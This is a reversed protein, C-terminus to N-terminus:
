WMSDTMLTATYAQVCGDEPALVDESEEGVFVAFIRFENEVQHLVAQTSIRDRQEVRLIGRHFCTESSKTTYLPSLGIILLPLILSNM